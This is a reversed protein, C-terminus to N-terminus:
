CAGAAVPPRKKKKKFLRKYVKDVPKIIQEEVPKLIVKGTAKLIESVAKEVEGNKSGKV